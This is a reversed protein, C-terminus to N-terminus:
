LKFGERIDSERGKVVAKCFRGRVIDDSTARIVQVQEGLNHREVFEVLWQLGTKNHLDNQSRDGILYLKGEENLRTLITYMEEPTINAAEDIIATGKFDRGRLYEMPAFEINKNNLGSEYVGSGWRNVIVDVIPMLYPEFKARMDGKLMGLTNKGMGVAPRSLILKDDVGNQLNDIAISTTLYTKGTGAPADIIVVQKTALAKLMEKQKPNKAEVPPIAHREEEFKEKSVRGREEKKAANAKRQDRRKQKALSM